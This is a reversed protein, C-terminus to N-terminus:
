WSGGGGGGGGGGSFGGGGGFGGGSQTAAPMSLASSSASTFNSLAAGLWLARFPAGPDAGVYWAPQLDLGREQLVALVEAWKRTLGFVMAYPLAAV